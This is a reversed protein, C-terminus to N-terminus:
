ADTLGIVGDTLAVDFDHANGLRAGTLRAQRLDTGREFGPQGPSITGFYANSLIADTLDADRLNANELHSDWLNAGRLDANRLSARRLDTRSLNLGGIESSDRRDDSLPPRCLVTMAAQADPARQILVQVYGGDGVAASPLRERVLAALTSVIHPRDSSSENAIRELAFIAGIRVQTSTSGLHEIARMFRDTLQGSQTLDLQKVAHDRQWKFTKKQSRLNLLGLVFTAGATILAVVVALPILSRSGSSAALYAIMMKEQRWRTGGRRDLRVSHKRPTCSPRRRHGATRGARCGTTPRRSRPAVRCGCHSPSPWGPSGNRTRPWAALWRAHQWVPLPTPNAAFPRRAKSQAAPATRRHPRCSSM